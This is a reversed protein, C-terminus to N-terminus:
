TLSANNVSLQKVGQLMAWTSVTDSFFKFECDFKSMGKAYGQMRMVWTTMFLNGRRRETENGVIQELYKERVNAKLSHPM